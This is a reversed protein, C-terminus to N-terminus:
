ASTERKLAVVGGLVGAPLMLGISLAEFWAPSASQPAGGSILLGGVGICASVVAVWGGHRLHHSGARRAGVYAGCVTAALGVAMSIILFEWSAYLADFARDAVEEDLSFAEPGAYWSVLPISAVATIGIDVIAGLFIAGWRLDDFIGEPNIPSPQPEL